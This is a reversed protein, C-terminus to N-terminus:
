SSLHAILLIVVLGAVVCMVIDLIDLRRIRAVWGMVEAEFRLRRRSAHPQIYGGVVSPEPPMTSQKVPTTDYYRYGARALNRRGRAVVRGLEEDSLSSPDVQDAFQGLFKLRRLFATRAQLSEDM